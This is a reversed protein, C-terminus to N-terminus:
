SYWVERPVFIKRVALGALLGFGLLSVVTSGRLRSGCRFASVNCDEHKGRAACHVGFGNRELIPLDEFNDFALSGKIAYLAVIDEQIPDAEIM